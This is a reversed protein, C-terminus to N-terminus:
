DFLGQLYYRGDDADRFLWVAGVGECRVRFYDRRFRQSGWWEGSLREPGAVGLVRRRQGWLRVYLPRGQGDVEADLPSPSPLLRVPRERLESPLAAANEQQEPLEGLLGPAASPPHFPALQYAAEPQHSDRLEASGLNPAGLATTLKALVVDLAADGQPGEGLVWQQAREEYRQEADIRVGRVPAPLTLSELSPRLLDLLQKPHSTPRALTLPLYEQGTPELDLTVGLRM